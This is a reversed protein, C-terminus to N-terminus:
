EFTKRGFRVFGPKVIDVPRLLGRIDVTARTSGVPVRALAISHNLTPSYGGSTVYGEGKETVVRQGDRMLGRGRYVLGVLTDLQGEEQMRRHELLAERGIFRREEPQWAITQAMNAALPSVSEDMDNGYLNMGAELRLTDRAGLGAPKVDFKLLARWLQLADDHPLILELGKEGTYGTRAVLWHGLEVAHYNGLELTKQALSPELLSCVRHISEPGNVAIISLDEREVISTDFRSAVNTIWAMDKERTACNVVMRYSNKLRYVILDDVVGGKDNLMASYLATGTGALKAIDNALLFSLFDAAQPGAIDVITMHSVDFMGASTRVAHHEEIQSGYNVPMQWGSFDVMRAGSELHLEYLATRKTEKNVM